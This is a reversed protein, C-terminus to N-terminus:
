NKLAKQAGLPSQNMALLLRERQWTNRLKETYCFSEGSTMFMM